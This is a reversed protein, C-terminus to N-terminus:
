KTYKKLLESVANESVPKSYHWEYLKVGNKKCLSKKRKDREQTQHFSKAGGFFEIPEYHQQGQYEIALNISPVYVDIRQQGLWDPSYEQIADPYYKIVYAALTAEAKWVSGISIYKQAGPPIIFAVVAYHEGSYYEYRAVLKIDSRNIISTLKKTLQDNNEKKWQHSLEYAGEVKTINDDFLAKHGILTYPPPVYPHPVWDEPNFYFHALIGFQPKDIAYDARKLLKEWKALRKESRWGLQGGWVKRPILVPKNALFQDIVTGQIGVSNTLYNSKLIQIEETWGEKKGYLKQATIWQDLTQFDEKEEVAPTVVEDLKEEETSKQNKSESLNTKNSRNLLLQQLGSLGLFIIVVVLLYFMRFDGCM